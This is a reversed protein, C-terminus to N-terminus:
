DLKRKGSFVGWHLFIGIKGQDYWVPLPRSDISEWNPEYKISEAGHLIVSLTIFFSVFNSNFAAMRDPIQKRAEIGFVTFVIIM